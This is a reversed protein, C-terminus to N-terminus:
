DNEYLTPGLKTELFYEDRKRGSKRLGEGVEAENDYRNATDILNYGNTLAFAVNETIQSGFQSITGFGLQPMKVGNNLTIYGNDM